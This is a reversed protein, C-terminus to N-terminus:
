RAPDAPPNGDGARADRAFRNALQRTVGFLEGIEVSSLGEAMLAVTISARIERRVAEFEDFRRTLDRSLDSSGSRRMKEVLSIGGELAAIDADSTRIHSQLGEILRETVARYRRVDAIVRAMRDDM